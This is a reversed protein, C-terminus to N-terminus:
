GCASQTVCDCPCSLDGAPLPQSFRQEVAGDGQELVQSVFGSSGLTANLQSRAVVMLSKKIKGVGCQARAENGKGIVIAFQFRYSQNAQRDNLSVGTAQAFRKIEQVFSSREGVLCAGPGFGAEVGLQGVGQLIQTSGLTSLRIEVSCQTVVLFGQQLKFMDAVKAVGRRHFVIM